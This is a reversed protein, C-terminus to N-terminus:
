MGADFVLIIVAVVNVCTTPMSCTAQINHFILLKRRIQILIMLMNMNTIMMGTFMTTIMIIMIMIMIVVVAVVVFCPPHHAHLPLLRHPPVRPRQRCMLIKIM